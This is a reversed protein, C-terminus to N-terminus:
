KGQFQPKRKELFAQTGERMDQTSCVLGFLDAELELAERIGMNQGRVVSELALRVAVPGNKTIKKALEVSKELLEEPPVVLNVLGMEYARQASVMEGTLVMELARGMGVLRALRQTGGYGPIVGLSVEPLGLKAKESAVRMHCALALELGGGLAYGNIAGIVPKGFNEITLTLRQGRQSMQKARFTDLEALEGIDAGAVFAKNGAGTLIVVQVSGDDALEEFAQFLEGIVAGNLANLKEERAITLLAVEERRELRLYEFGM